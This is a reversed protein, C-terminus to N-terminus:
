NHRVSDLIYTEELYATLAPSGLINRYQETDFASKAREKRFVEMLHQMREQDEESYHLEEFM